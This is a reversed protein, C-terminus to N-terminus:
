LRAFIWFFALFPQKQQQKKKEGKKIRVVKLKLRVGIMVKVNAM